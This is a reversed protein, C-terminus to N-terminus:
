QLLIWSKFTIPGPGQYRGVVTQKPVSLNFGPHFTTLERSKQLDPALQIEVRADPYMHFFIEVQHKGRGEISDTVCLQRDALRLRRRHVVPNSLRKYGDHAAEAFSKGDTKVDLPYARRAVRFCAWVESSDQGDIRVTNHAATGREWARQHGKEYSSTGSNVLIRRGRHSLEFSLTDAHAHGPQYEPGVPAADFLVVTDGTELRIYGSSGLRGEKVEIGLRAAYDFLLCPDPAVGLTADNFFAIQGDLHTLQKLWGLMRSAVPSWCPIVEPYAAGLNALDLLGELVLSHYMPSREFHGGDELIQEAIEKRLITVGQRLWADQAFFAGAFVLAEGNMFLHNGLLHYEISHSLFDAQSALSALMAESPANGCLIWKIWNVIRVSLPYPEWGTGRSGPNEKIWRELLARNPNDQYHITYDRLRSQQTLPVPEYAIPETWTGSRQRLPVDLCGVARPVQRALRNVVQGPKLHRITHLFLSASSLSTM